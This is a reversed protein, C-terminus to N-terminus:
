SSVRKEVHKKRKREGRKSLDSQKVKYSDNEINFVNLYFSYLFKDTIYERNKM